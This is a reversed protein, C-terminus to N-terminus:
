HRRGHRVTREIEGRNEIGIDRLLWDNLGKLQEVAVAIERERRWYTMIAEIVSRPWSRPKEDETRIGSAVPIIGRGMISGNPFPSVTAVKSGADLKGANLRSPAQDSRVRSGARGDLTGKHDPDSRSRTSSPKFVSGPKKQWLIQKDNTM